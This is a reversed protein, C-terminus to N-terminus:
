FPYMNPDAGYNGAVVDLNADHQLRWRDGASPVREYEEIERYRERQEDETEDKWTSILNEGLIWNTRHTHCVGINTRGANYIDEAGKSKPCHPCGWFHHEADTSPSQQMHTM